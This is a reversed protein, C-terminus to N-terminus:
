LFELEEENALMINDNDFRVMLMLDSGTDTVDMITAPKELLVEPPDIFIDTNGARLRVVKIRKGILNYLKIQRATATNM